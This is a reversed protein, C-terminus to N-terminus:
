KGEPNPAAPLPHWREFDAVHCGPMQQFRRRFTNRMGLRYVWRGQFRWGGLFWTGDQPANDMDQWEQVAALSAAELYARIADEVAGPLNDYNNDSDNFASMAAIFADRNLERM